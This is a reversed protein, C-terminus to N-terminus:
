SLPLLVPGAGVGCYTKSIDVVRRATIIEQAEGEEGKGWSREGGRGGLFINVFPCFYIVCWVSLIDDHRVILIEIKISFFTFMEFSIEADEASPSILCVTNSFPSCTMVASRGCSSVTESPTHTLVPAALSDLASLPM